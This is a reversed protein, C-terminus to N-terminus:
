PKAAPERLTRISSLLMRSVEDCLAQCVQLQAEDGLGVERSLLLQAEVEFVSGRAMSLFQLLQAQTGRGHGEAINSVISISARRLQSTMGYLEERPFGRTLEYIKVSLQMAKQFPSLSSCNQLPSDRTEDDRM